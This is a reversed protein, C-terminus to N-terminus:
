EGAVLIADVDYFYPFNGGFSEGHEAIYATLDFSYPAAEIVREGKERAQIIRQHRADWESAYRAFQPLLRLQHVVICFVIIGAVVIGAGSAFTLWRQSVRNTRWLRLLTLGAFVGWILGSLVQLLVPATLVRAYVIGISRLGIVVPVVVAIVASASFLAAALGAQRASFSSSLSERPAGPRPLPRHVLLALALGAALAMVFAIISERHLLYELSIRLSDSALAGFDSVPQALGSALYAKLRVGPGPSLLQLGLSAVSGLWASAVCLAGHHRWRGLAVAGVLTLSLAMLQYVVHMESFGGNVLGFLVFILAMFAVQPRRRRRKSLACALAFFILLSGVPLAYRVSAAYYYLAEWTPFASLSAAVTLAALMVSMSLAGRRLGLARLVLMALWTLGGLWLAIIIAPMIAPLAAAGLPALLDNFLIFSYSGYWNQWWYSFNDRGSLRLATAFLGYDDAMMRASFGLAAYLLVPASSLAALMRLIHSSRPM